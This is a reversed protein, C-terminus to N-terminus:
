INLVFPVYPIHYGAPVIHAVRWYAVTPGGVLGTPSGGTLWQPRGELIIAMLEEPTMRSLPGESGELYEFEEGDFYFDIGAV